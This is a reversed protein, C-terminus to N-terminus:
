PGTRKHLPVLERYAVETDPDPLHLHLARVLDFHNHRVHLIARQLVKFSGLWGELYIIIGHLSCM